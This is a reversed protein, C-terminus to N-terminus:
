ERHNLGKLMNTLKINLIQLVPTASDYPKTLESLKQLNNKLLTIFKTDCNIAEAIQNYLKYTRSIPLCGVTQKSVKGFPKAYVNYHIVYVDKGKPTPMSTHNYVGNLVFKNKYSLVLSDQDLYVFKNIGYSKMTNFITDLVGNTLVHTNYLTVGACFYGGNALHPYHLLKDNAAHHIRNVGERSMAIPLNSEVFNNLEEYISDIWIVDLDSKIIIDYKNEAILEDIAELYSFMCILKSSDYMNDSFSTINMENKNETLFQKVRDNKIHKFTVDPYLNLMDQDPIYDDLIYMNIPIDPHNYKFTHIFVKAPNVFDKDFSAIAICKHTM